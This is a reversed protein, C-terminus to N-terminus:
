TSTVSAGSTPSQSNNRKEKPIYRPDPVNCRHEAKCHLQTGAPTLVEELFHALRTKGHLVCLVYQAGDKKKNKELARQEEKFIVEEILKKAAAVQKADGRVKAFGDRVDWVKAGTRECIDRITSGGRGIIAPRMSDDIPLYVINSDDSQDRAGDREQSRPERAVLRDGGGRTNSGRGLSRIKELSDEKKKQEETKRSDASKQTLANDEEIREIDRRNQKALRELVGDGEGKLLSLLLVDIDSLGKKKPASDKNKRNPFDRSRKKEREPARERQTPGRENQQKEDVPPPLTKLTAPTATSGHEPPRPSSDAAVRNRCMMDDKCLYDGSVQRFMHYLSRVEGHSACIAHCPDSKSCLYDGEKGKVLVARRRLKGHLACPVRIARGNTDKERSGEEQHDELEVNLRKNLQEENFFTVGKITSGVARDLARIGLKTMAGSGLTEHTVWVSSSFGHEAGFLALEKGVQEDMFPIGNGDRAPPFKWDEYGVIQETNYFRGFDGVQTAEAGDHLPIKRTKLDQEFIWFPSRFGQREAAAELKPMAEPSFAAWRNMKLRRFPMRGLEAIATSYGRIVYVNSQGASPFVFSASRFPLAAFRRTFM